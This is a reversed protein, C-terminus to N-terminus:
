HSRSRSADRRLTGLPAILEADAGGQNRTKHQARPTADRTPVRGEIETATGAAPGERRAARPPRTVQGLTQDMRKSLGSRGGGPWPGRHFPRSVGGFLDDALKVRGFGHEQRAVRGSL